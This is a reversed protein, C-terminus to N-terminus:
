KQEHVKVPLGTKRSKEAALAILHSEVSKELSTEPRANGELVDYLDKLMMYDGGGHGFSDDISESVIESIKYETVDPHLLGNYKYVRIYDETENFLIEGYTGHFTYVRGGRGTFATMTLTARVGNEFTMDVVQNDVVDNDCKFVCRGYYPSQEYAERLGQETFPKHVPDVVNYPWGYPKNDNIWAQVYELEASYPCTNIYKCDKCCDAAGEPQNEPKFFSLAGNSYVSDCPSGIFHQIIDLDHCCKQMIMPSTDEERRWNGRVFSHAQHAYRVQELAEMRVLKGIVGSDLLQKLKIYAPAYRLVHCVMVEGGYKKQAQLIEYLEEKVPSIPKELLIDYGLKLARVAQRVHDRDQTGIVLVDARKEKFFEEEMVFRNQEDIDFREGVRNLQEGDIDCLAVIKYKDGWAHLVTGYAFAGRSGCGLIAVTYVKDGHSGLDGLLKVFHEAGDSFGDKPSDYSKLNEFSKGGLAALGGFDMLHPELSVFVDTQSNKAYENLIEKIKADGCGAPVVTGVGTASDYVADKIHFYEIHKKLLNYAYPYTEVGKLAYNGTDFVIKLRGSFAECLEYCSEPTDGYLRSENELCLVVGYEDAVDLLKRMNRYVAEKHDYINEGDPPYFSFVRVHKAGFVNAMKFIRRAMAFHADLDGDLKVKGIPSGIASVKIGAADLKAKIAAVDEETMEAVGKGDAHRLEICGIGFKQLAEIQEDLLDSYEDAFASTIFKVM